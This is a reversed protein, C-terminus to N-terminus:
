QVQHAKELIAKTESKWVQCNPVELEHCPGTLAQNLLALAEERRGQDLYLEALFNYAIYRRPGMKVATKLHEEAKQNDGGMVGPLKFYLRGLIIHPGGSDFNPDMELVTNMAKKIPDALNLSKLIGTAQGLEGYDLGLWYHTEPIDPALAVAKQGAAVGEQYVAVKRDKPSIRGLWNCAMALKWYAEAQAPELKTAERYKDVATQAQDPDGRKLFAADGEEILTRYDAALSTQTWALGIVLCCILIAPGLSRTKFERCFPM